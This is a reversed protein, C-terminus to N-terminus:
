RHPVALTELAAACLMVVIIFVLWALRQQASLSERRQILWSGCGLAVGAWEVPLQPIYALLPRGYAGLAVGVPLINAMMSALLLGDALRKTLPNRQAGTLGLLLPWAVIPTNHAALALVHELNPAPNRAATLTLGLIRRSPDALM